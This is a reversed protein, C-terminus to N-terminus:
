SLLQEKTSTVAPSVPKTQPMPQAAFASAIFIVLVILTLDALFLHILQM